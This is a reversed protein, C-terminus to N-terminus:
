FDNINSIFASNNELYFSIKLDADSEGFYQLELGSSLGSAHALDISVIYSSNADLSVQLNTDLTLTTTNSKVEDSPKYVTIVGGGSGGIPEYITDFYTKLTAKINAWTVKKLVTDFLSFIDADVPTPKDTSAVMLDSIDTNLLVVAGTRTNFSAVLDSYDAKLWNTAYVSTSANDVLAIIRDNISFDIGDVTGAVTIQYSYGAQAIGAGPFTGVSADWPGKLVVSSELADVKLVLDDIDAPLTITILDVKTKDVPIQLGAKNGGVTPTVVPITADAGRNNTVVGHTSFATYGLTVATETSDVWEVNNWYYLIKDTTNFYVQGQVPNSPPSALNHIVGNLIQNQLLDIDLAFIEKNM